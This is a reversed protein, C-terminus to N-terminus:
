VADPSGKICCPGASSSGYCISIRAMQHLSSCACASTCTCSALLRKSAVQEAACASSTLRDHKVVCAPASCRIGM